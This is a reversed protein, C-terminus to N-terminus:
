KGVNIYSYRTQHENGDNISVRVPYSGPEVNGIYYSLRVQKEDKPGLNATVGNQLGLNRSSLTISIEKEEDENNILTFTQTNYGQNTEKLAINMYSLIDTTEGRISQMTSEKEPYSFRVSESVEINSNEKDTLKVRFECNTDKKINFKFDLTNLDFEYRTGDQNSSSSVPSVQMTKEGSLRNQTGDCVITPEMEMVRRSLTENYIEVSFSFEGPEVVSDINLKVDNEELKNKDPDEFAVVQTTQSTTFVGDSVELEPTYVGSQTYTYQVGDLQSCEQTQTINDEFVISCMLQDGDVDTANINFTTTFPTEGNDPTANFSNIQPPLNDIFTINMSDSGNVGQSDTAIVEVVSNGLTSSNLLLEEGIIQATGVGSVINANITLTSFNENADSIYNTLDIVEGRQISVNLSDPLDVVPAQNEEQLNVYIEMDSGVTITDEAPAYQPHNVRYRYEGPLVDDFGAFGSVLTTESQSYTPEVAFDNQADILTFNVQANEVGQSNEDVVIFDVDYQEPELIELNQTHNTSEQLQCNSGVPTSIASIEYNGASVNSMNQTLNITHSNLGQTPTSYNNEFLTTGDQQISLSYNMPTISEDRYAGSDLTAYLFEGQTIQATSSTLAENPRNTLTFEEIRTWCTNDLNDPYITEEVQARDEQANIVQNDTVETTIDFVVSQNELNANPTWEFAAFDACQDAEIPLFVRDDHLLNGNDSRKIELNVYTDAEFDSYEGPIIPEWANDLARTYASCVSQEIEVPVEIQVPAEDNQTNVLNVQGIEAIAGDKKEFDVNREQEDICIDYQCDFNNQEVYYPLYSDDSASFYTLYGFSSPIEVKTIVHNSNQMSVINDQIEYQNMCDKFESSSMDQSDDQAQNLCTRAEGSYLDITRQTTTSCDNNGCEAGSVFVDDPVGQSGTIEFSSYFEAGTASVSMIVLSILLLLIRKM